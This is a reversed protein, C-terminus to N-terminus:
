FTKKLLKQDEDITRGLYNKIIKLNNLNEEEKKNLKNINIDNELFENIRLEVMERHIILKEKIKNLLNLNGEMMNEYDETTYSLPNEKIKRIADEISKVRIRYRNFINKIDDVAKDYSAKELHMKFLIEHITIKLNEEVELTSLIFSYGDDTISYVVRRVDDVYQMRNKVFNINIDEYQAKKFNYAKFYMVKGENCLITNVIFEALEKCEEYSLEKKFHISNIEDIFYGINDITCMDNKLSEEMIYLLVTFILNDQEYWESFGYKKWTGKAISNRFM